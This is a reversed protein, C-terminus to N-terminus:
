VPADVPTGPSSSRRASGSLSVVVDGREVQQFAPDDFSIHRGGRVIAIPMGDCRARDPPGGVEDADVTRETLELGHGAVLLSQLVGIAGPAQTSLGVLRGAAESGLVVTTAGSQELLHANEAERVAVSIPVSANLERATLTVLAATDDRNCTVVVARARELRVQSWTSTRTADAMVGVLGADGAVAVPEALRDIVVIDARAIGDALLTEVAGRGMTGYGVIITHGNVRSRWHSEARTQRFRETLLELTTGVLLILFVVRLPTVVFATIARQAASVPAIDGYGTTTVTVTAYYFADLMSLPTGDADSYGGRGLWTLLAILVVIGIAIGLRRVLSRLAGPARHPFQIRPAESM